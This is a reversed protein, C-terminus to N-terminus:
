FSTFPIITMVFASAVPIFLNDKIPLIEIITATLAGFIIVPIEIQYFFSFLFGVILCTFLNAITGQWSKKRFIKHRGYKEGVLAAFGDGFVLFFVALLAINKEFFCVTLFVGALTYVLMSTKKIEDERYIGDFIKLIKRNLDENKQRLFEFIAIIIIIIGLLLLTTEKSFLFIYCFPIILICWHPIKRKSEATM